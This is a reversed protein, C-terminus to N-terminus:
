VYIYNFIILVFYFLVKRNQRVTITHHTVISEVKDVATILLETLWKIRNQCQSLFLSLCQSNLHIVIGHIVNDSLDLKHIIHVITFM